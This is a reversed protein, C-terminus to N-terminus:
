TFVKTTFNDVNIIFDVITNVSLECGVGNGLSFSTLNTSNGSINVSGSSGGVAGNYHSFKANGASGSSEVGTLFTKIVLDTSTPDYVFVSKLVFDVHAGSLTLEDVNITIVSGGGFNLKFIVPFVNSTGNTSLRLYHSVEAFSSALTLKGIPIITAFPIVTQDVGNGTFSTFLSSNVAHLTIAGSPGIPGPVTSTPGIPGPVTSTPGIPGPVTSVPGIPGPVTSAPGVPGPVVSDKGDAGPDGKISSLNIGSCGSCNNINCTNCM